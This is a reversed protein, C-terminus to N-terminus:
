KVSKEAEGLAGAVQAMQEEAITTFFPLTIVRRSLDETVPLPRDAYPKFM